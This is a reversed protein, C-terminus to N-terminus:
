RSPDRSALQAALTVAKRALGSAALYDNRVMAKRAATTLDTAQNFAATDEGSLKSRDVHALESDADDLLVQAQRRDADHDELTVTTPGEPTPQPQTQAPASATATAPKKAHARHTKKPTAPEEVVTTPPIVDPPPKSVVAAPRPPPPKSWPWYSVIAACGGLQFSLMLAAM